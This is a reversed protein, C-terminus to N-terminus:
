VPIIVQIRKISAATESLQQATLFLVGMITQAVLFLLPLVIYLKTARVIFGGHLTAVSLICLYLLRPGVTWICATVASM